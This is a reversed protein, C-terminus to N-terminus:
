LVTVNGENQKILEDMKTKVDNTAGRLIELEKSTSFYYDVSKCLFKRQDITRDIAPRIM